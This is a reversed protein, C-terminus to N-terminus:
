FSCRPPAQESGRSGAAGQPSRMTTAAACWRPISFERAPLRPRADLRDMRRRRDFEFGNTLVGDQLLGKALTFGLDYFIRLRRMDDTQPAADIAANMQEHSVGLIAHLADAKAPNLPVPDASFHEATERALTLAAEGEHLARTHPVRAVASRAKAHFERAMHIPLSSRNFGDELASLFQIFLPLPTLLPLEGIGPELDNQPFQLLWPKWKGDIYEMATFHNVPEFCKKWADAPKKLRAYLRKVIDFCNDYYGTWIHLGHEVARGGSAMDRGVSAKGGLRWGITYLTIDYASQNPDQETLEFAATLAAIGGGLIAVRTKTKATM